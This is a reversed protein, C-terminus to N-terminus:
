QGLGEFGIEFGTTINKKELEIIRNFFLMKRKLLTIITITVLIPKKKKVFSKTIQLLDFGREIEMLMDVPFGEYV